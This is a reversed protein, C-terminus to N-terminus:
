GNCWWHEEHDISIIEITYNKETLFDRVQQVSCGLDPLAEPHVSLLMAPKYKDIFKKAGQLAFLEAGEIDCKILVKSSINVEKFLGDITYKPISDDTTDLTIYATTGPLGTVGSEALAKDTLKVAEDINTSLDSENTILGYVVSFKKSSAYQCMMRSAMLSSLDSDFAIVEANNSAFLAIASIYGISSGIDLVYCDPNDIIWNVICDTSPKEYDALDVKYYEPPIRITLKENIIVPVGTNNFNLFYHYPKRLINWLWEMNQLPGSHRINTAIKSFKTM